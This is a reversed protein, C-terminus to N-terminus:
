NVFLQHDTDTTHSNFVEVLIEILLVSRFPYVTGGDVDMFMKDKHM